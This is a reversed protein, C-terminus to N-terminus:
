EDVVDFLRARRFMSGTGIPINERADQITQNVCSSLVAIPDGSM